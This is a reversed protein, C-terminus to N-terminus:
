VDMTLSVFEITINCKGKYTEEDDGGLGSEAGLGSGAGLGGLGFDTDTKM